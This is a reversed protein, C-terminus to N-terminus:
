AAVARGHTCVTRKGKRKAEYLARDAMVILDSPGRADTLGLSAVGATMSVQLDPYLMRMRQTFMAIMRHALNAAGGADIGPLLLLFEDGGYRVAVDEARTCERLLQGAFELVRDGASHGYSDNLRKFGDLDFMVATLDKRDRKQTTFLGKIREHLFRRNYLGTLHDIWADREVRKLERNVRQTHEDMRRGFLIETRRVQGRLDKMGAHIQAIRQGAEAWLDDRQLLSQGPHDPSISFQVLDSLPKEVCEHHMKLAFAYLVGIGALMLAAMLLWSFDHRVLLSPAFVLCIRTGAEPGNLPLEITSLQTLNSAIEAPAAFPRVTIQGAPYSCQNKLQPLLLPFHSAGALMEGSSKLVAAAFLAPHETLRECVDQTGPGYDRGVALAATRGLAEAAAQEAARRNRSEIIGYAVLILAAFGCLLLGWKRPQGSITSNPSHTSM